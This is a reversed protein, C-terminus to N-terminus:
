LINAALEALESREGKTLTMHGVLPQGKLKEVLWTLGNSEADVYPNDIQYPDGTFVVKTGEGVRTVITKVELPTLNQAEDVVLFQNPISLRRTTNIAEVELLGMGQLDAWANRPERQKQRKPQDADDGPSTGTIFDINDIIPKMWPGLKEELTGPLYGIDKGLSIPPRTVLLRAYQHTDAIQHLGAALALLTKGTGAKGVLTVLAISPDLLLDLAFSQERNRAKIRGLHARNLWQLSKITNTNAQHRALLTHNNNQQDVMVVGENAQLHQGEPDTVAALSLQDEDHLTKMTQADTNLERFGTYLDDISVNDNIYDEAQLGVADAKIRLNIDKSILVVEPAEKLGSCRMQELAVALINNDGGGVGLEPPLEKLANTQCFIVQLMGKNTGEIMVGDALSGRQRYSDLLRSIRRANRGKESHDKKFRDIEEVVQMPIVVRLNGFRHPAEPDHLLVNTDLVVVKGKM